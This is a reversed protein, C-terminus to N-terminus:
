YLSTKEKIPTDSYRMQCNMNDRVVQQAIHYQNMITFGHEKIKLEQERAELEKTKNKIKKM